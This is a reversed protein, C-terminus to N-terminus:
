WHLFGSASRSLVTVVPLAPERDHFYGVVPLGADFLAAEPRDLYPARVHSTWCFREGHRFALHYDCVLQLGLGLAFEIVAGTWQDGPCILTMRSVFGGM